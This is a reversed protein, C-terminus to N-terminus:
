PSVEQQAPVHEIKEEGEGRLRHEGLELLSRECNAAGQSGLYSASGAPERAEHLRLVAPGEAISAPWSVLHLLSPYSQSSSPPSPCYRRTEPAEPTCSLLMIVVQSSTLRTSSPSLLKYHRPLNFAEKQVCAASAKTPRMWDM